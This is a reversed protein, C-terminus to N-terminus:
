KTITTIEVDIALRSHKCDTGSDNDGTVILGVEAAKNLKASYGLLASERQSLALGFAGVSQTKPITCYAGPQGSGLCYEKDPSNPGPNFGGILSPWDYLFSTVNEANQYSAFRDTYDYSSLLVIDNFTLLLEDDFSIQQNASSIGIDCILANDPMDLNFFQERRARVIGDKAALNGDSGWACSNTNEEFVVQVTRKTKVGTSCLTLVDSISSM